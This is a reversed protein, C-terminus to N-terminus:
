QRHSIPTRKTIGIATGSRLPAGRLFPLHVVVVGRRDVGSVIMGVILRPMIVVIMIRMVVVIQCVGVMLMIVPMGVPCGRRQVILRVGAQVGGSEAARGARV